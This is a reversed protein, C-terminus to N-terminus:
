RSARTREFLTVELEAIAKATPRLEVPFDNVRNQNMRMNVFKTVCSLNGINCNLPDGDIFRIVHKAPIAGNHQEWVVHHKYRYRTKAGTYPNPEAVKMLVFGDKSCIREHGLPKQNAPKIGKQFSGSNPRCVGKTGTNWPQNGKTLRGDRGTMWGHRKCFSTIAGIQLQADFQQNFRATLEKRPLASHNKLFAKEEDSYLRCQGKPM